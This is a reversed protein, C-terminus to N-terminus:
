TVDGLDEYREPWGMVAKVRTAMDQQGVHFIYAPDDKDSGYGGYIVDRLLALKAELSADEGRHHGLEDDRTTGCRALVARVDNLVTRVGRVWDTVEGRSVEVSLAQTEIEDLVAELRERLESSM